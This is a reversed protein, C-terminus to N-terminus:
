PRQIGKRIHEALKGKGLVVRADKIRELNFPPDNYREKYELKKGTSGLMLNAYETKFMMYEETVLQIEQEKRREGYATGRLKKIKIHVPLLFVAIVLLSFFSAGKPLKHIADLMHGARADTFLFIELPASVIVGLLVIFLLRIALAPKTGSTTKRQPLSSSDITIINLMYLNGLALTWFFASCWITIVNEFVLSSSYYFAFLFLGLVVLVISGAISFSSRDAVPCHQLVQRDAGILKWLFRSIIRNIM